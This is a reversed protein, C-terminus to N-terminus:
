EVPEGIFKRHRAHGCVCVPNGAQTIPVTSIFRGQCRHLLVRIRQWAFHITSVLDSVSLSPLVMFHVPSRTTRKRTQKCTTRGNGTIEATIWNVTGAHQHDRDTAEDDLRVIAIEALANVS